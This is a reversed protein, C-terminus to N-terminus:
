NWGVVNPTIFMWKLCCNEHESLPVSNPHVPMRVCVYARININSCIHIFINSNHDSIIHYIIHQNNKSRCIMLLDICSMTYTVYAWKFCVYIPAHLVTHIYAHIQTHDIMYHVTRPNLCHIKIQCPCRPM